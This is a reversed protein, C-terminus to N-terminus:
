DKEGHYKAKIWDIFDLQFFGWIYRMFWDSLRYHIEINLRFIWWYIAITPINFSIYVEISPLIYVLGWHRM